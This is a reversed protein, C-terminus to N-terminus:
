SCLFKHAKHGIMEPTRLGVILTDEDFKGLCKLKGTPDEKHHWMKQAKCITQNYNSINSSIAIIYSFDAPAIFYIYDDIYDSIGLTMLDQLISLSLYCNIIGQDFELSFVILNCKNTITITETNNLTEMCKINEQINTAPYWFDIGQYLIIGFQIFNSSNPQIGLFLSLTPYINIMFENTINLAYAINYPIDNFNQFKSSYWM